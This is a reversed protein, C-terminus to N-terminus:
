DVEGDGSFIASHKIDERPAAMLDASFAAGGADDDTSTPRRFKNIATAARM